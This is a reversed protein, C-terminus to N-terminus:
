ATRAAHDAIAHSQGLRRDIRAHAELAPRGDQLAHLRDVVDVEELRQDGRGLRRRAYGGLAFVLGGVPHDGIMQAGRAKQDGLAHEWGVGAAAIDQAADHAAGHPVRM